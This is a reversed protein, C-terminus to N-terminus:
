FAMSRIPSSFVRGSRPASTRLRTTRAGLQSSARQCHEGRFVGREDRELEVKIRGDVVVSSEVDVGRAYSRNKRKCFTSVNEGLLGGGALASRRGRRGGTVPMKPCTSWPLVDRRSESREVETADPSAPPMVCCMPANSTDTAVIIALRRAFSLFAGGAEGGWGSSPGPVIM